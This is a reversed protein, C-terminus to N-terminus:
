PKEKMLKKIKTLKKKLKKESIKKNELQKELKDLEWFIKQDTSVEISYGTFDKKLMEKSQKEIDKLRFRDFQEVQVALVLDQDSNAGRVETVEERKLLKDKAKNAVTQDAKENQVNVHRVAMQKNQNNNETANQCGNTITTIFLLFVTILFYNLYVKM